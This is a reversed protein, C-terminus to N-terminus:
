VSRRASRALTIAEEIDAIIEPCYQKAVELIIRAQEEDCPINYGEFEVGEISHDIRTARDIAAHARSETSIQRRLKDYQRPAVKIFVDM